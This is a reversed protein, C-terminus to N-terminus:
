VLVVFIQTSYYPIVYYITVCADTHHKPVYTAAKLLVEYYYYCKRGYNYTPYNRRKVRTLSLLKAQRPHSDNEPLSAYFLRCESHNSSCGRVLDSSKLIVNYYSRKNQIRLYRSYILLPLAKIYM